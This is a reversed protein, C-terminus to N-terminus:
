NFQLKKLKRYVTRESIGLTKAVKKRNGHFRELLKQIHETELDRLSLTMKAPAPAEAPEQTFQLPVSEKGPEQYTADESCHQPLSSLINDILEGSIEQNNSRSTAIYLVNRLERINGPYDHMKLRESADDTLFYNGHLAQNITRILKSAVIPIDDLRERLSPLRINLCAIRHYLDERFSGVQVSEWLHRNTACIIRVDCTITALGGVRRFQGTDLVRLLKAQQLAPLACIEDLFITGGEALQFLGLKDASSNSHLGREQGFMETEFLSDTLVASDVIQFPKDSRRSYQHIYEAALEKGTGTEGQLLVPADSASASQLQEICATFAPTNGVMSKIGGRANHPSKLHEICEGLYLQKDSGQLPYAAVRVRHAVQQDDLHVHECVCPKGTDFVHSHPCNEGEESCPHDSGHSLQYCKKGVADGDSSGYVTKYAHNVAVIRYDRDIVVFPKEHSDVLSKLEIAPFKKRKKQM